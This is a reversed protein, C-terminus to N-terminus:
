ERCFKAQDFLCTRKPILRVNKGDDIASLKKERYSSQSGQVDGRLTVGRIPFNSVREFVQRSCLEKWM